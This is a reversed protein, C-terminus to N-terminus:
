KRTSALLSRTAFSQFKRKLVPLVTADYPLEIKVSISFTAPNPFEPFRRMLELKIEEPTSPLPLKMELRRSRLGRLRDEGATYISVEYQHLDPTQEPRSIIWYGELKHQPELGVTTIHVHQGVFEFIASGEENVKRIQPLAWSMLSAVSDFATDDGALCFLLKRHEVDVRRLKHPLRDQLQKRHELVEELGLQLDVLKAFSPYLRNHRLEKRAATLHALIRYRQLEEDKEPHLFLDFSLKESVEM